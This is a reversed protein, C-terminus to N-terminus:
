SRMIWTPDLPLGFLHVWYNGKFLIWGNMPIWSFIFIGHDDWPDTIGVVLFWPYCGRCTTVWCTPNSITPVVTSARTSGDWPSLAMFGLLRKLPLKRHFFILIGLRLVGLMELDASPGCRFPHFSSHIWWHVDHIENSPLINTWKKTSRKLFADLANEWM